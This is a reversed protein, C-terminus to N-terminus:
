FSGESPKKKIEELLNPFSELNWMSDLCNRHLADVLDAFYNHVRGMVDTESWDFEAMRVISALPIKSSAVYQEQLKKFIRLVVDETLNRPLGADLLPKVRGTSPVHDRAVESRSSQSGVTNEGSPSSYVVSDEDLATPDEHDDELMSSSAEVLAEPCLKAVVLGSLVMKYKLPIGSLLPSPVLRVSGDPLKANRAEVSSEYATREDLFRTVHPVSLSELVPPGVVVDTTTSVATSRLNEM